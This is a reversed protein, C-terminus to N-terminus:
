CKTTILVHLSTLLVCVIDTIIALSYVANIEVVNLM